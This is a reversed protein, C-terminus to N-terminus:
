PKTIVLDQIVLDRVPQVQHAVLYDNLREQVDDALRQVRQAGEAGGRDHEAVAALLHRRAHTRAHM